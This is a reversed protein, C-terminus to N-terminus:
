EVQIKTQKNSGELVSKKGLGFWAGQM